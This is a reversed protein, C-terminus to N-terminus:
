GRLHICKTLTYLIVQGQVENIEITINSVISTIVSSLFSELVLSILFSFSELEVHKQPAQNSFFEIKGGKFQILLEWRTRRGKDEWMCDGEIRRCSSLLKSSRSLSALGHSVKLSQFYLSSQSFVLMLNVYCM